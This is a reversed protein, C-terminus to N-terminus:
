SDGLTQEFEHRNLRHHWEVMEDETMGKEEQGLEKHKTYKLMILIFFDLYDSRCELAQCMICQTLIDSVFYQLAPCGQVAVAELLSAKTLFPCQSKDCIFELPCLLAERQQVQENMQIGKNGSLKLDM